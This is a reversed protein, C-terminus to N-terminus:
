ASGKQFFLYGIISFLYVLILALLGTMIISQWNRTVSSIVNRLTEDSSVIDFLKFLLIYLSIPIKSIAMIIMRNQKCFKSFLSPLRFHFSFLGIICLIISSNFSRVLMYCCIVLSVM